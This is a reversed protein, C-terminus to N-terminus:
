VNLKKVRRKIMRVDRLMKLSDSVLKIKSKKHNIIRVPYEEIVAGMKESIMLFELDFAWGNVECLAFAKRGREGKFMKLGTQSDSHKFGAFFSLLKLYTKSALKRMFGYGSYGDQSIARSGLLIDANGSQIKELMEVIIDVGYALDCDTYVIIDGSSDLVGLRVAKGKGSNVKENHIIVKGHELSKDEVYKELLEICGDKSGDNSFIIEYDYKKEPLKAEFCKVLEDYCALINEKENFVPIVVSLKM